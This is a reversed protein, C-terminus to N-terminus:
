FHMEVASASSHSVLVLTARRSSRIPRHRPPPALCKLEIVFILAAFPMVFARGNNRDGDNM